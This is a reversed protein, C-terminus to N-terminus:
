ATSTEGDDAKPGAKVEYASVIGQLDSLTLKGLEAFVDPLQKKAVLHLHAVLLANLHDMQRIPDLDLYSVPQTRTSCMKEAFALEQLTVTEVTWEDGGLTLKWGFATDTEAARAFLADFLGGLDDDYDGGKIADVIATPDAM